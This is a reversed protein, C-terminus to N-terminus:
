FKDLSLQNYLKENLLKLRDSKLEGIKKGLRAKDITKIESVIIRSPNKTLQVDGELDDSTIKMMYAEDIENGDGEIPVVIVKQAYANGTANQIIVVPHQGSLESGFNEGLFANYVQGRIPRVPHQGIEKGSKVRQKQHQESEYTIKLGSPINTVLSQFKKFDSYKLKDIINDINTRLIGKSKDNLVRLDNYKLERVELGDVINGYKSLM